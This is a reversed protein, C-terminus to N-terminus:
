SIGRPEAYVTADFSAKTSLDDITFSEYYLTCNVPNSSSSISFDIMTGYIYNRIDGTQENDGEAYITPLFLSTIKKTQGPEITSDDDEDRYWGIIGNRIELKQIYINAFSEESNTINVEIIPCINGGGEGNGAYELIDNLSDSVSKIVDPNTDGLANAINNLSETVSTANSSGGLKQSIKNLVQLNTEM